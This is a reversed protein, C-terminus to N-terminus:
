LHLGPGGSGPPGGARVGGGESPASYGRGQGAWVDYLWGTGDDAGEKIPREAHLHGVEVRLECTLEACALSVLQSGPGRPTGLM